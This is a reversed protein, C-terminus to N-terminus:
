YVVPKVAKAGWLARLRRDRGCGERYSHYREWDKKWFDQHYEEARWFPGADRIPTVVPKKLEAAIRRKSAEALRRQEPGHVFIATRYSDGIDCFQGDTQTPDVGHWFLDLLAAYSVRAPDFRIEVAELHGTVHRGVEEYTPTAKHGGTYGSVVSLVGPRGEFQTEVCWFCGGAFTAVETRAPTAAPTVAPRTAAKPPAPSSAAPAPAALAVALAVPAFSRVAHRAPM